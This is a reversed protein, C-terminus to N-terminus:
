PALELTEIEIVPTQPWRQDIGEEGTVIIRKGRYPKLKLGSKEAHLYNITKRTEPSVLEYYTPAQISVTSRVIGERRVLRRPLPEEKAPVPPAVEPLPKAEAAPPAETKAPAAPAEEKKPQPEPTTAAEAPKADVVPAPAPETKVAEVVPPPPAAAEAPAPKKVPQAAATATPTLATKDLFASAVFAYANAPTEIEMWDDVTRIEKVAAGKELRGLISYNEGPGARVNLRSVSVTKAALDLYPVFVWVPTNAPMKIKAWKAPEDPKPKEVTIEELITVTEGKQLQTVVESYLSAQGRVNIRKQNVTATEEASVESGLLGLIILALWGFRADTKM